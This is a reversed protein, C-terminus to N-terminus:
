YRNTFCCAFFPLLGVQDEPVELLDMYRAVTRRPTHTIKSSVVGVEEFVRSIWYSQTRSSVSKLPANLDAPILKKGYWSARDTFSPTPEGYSDWRYSLWQALAGVPCLLVDKHRLFGHYVISRPSSGDARDITKGTTVMMVVAACDQGENDLRISVLDALEVMRTSESRLMMAHLLLLDLRTRFSREENSGRSALLATSIKRSEDITYGDKLGRIARDEFTSRRLSARTIRLDHLFARILSGRPHPYLNGEALRQDEWLSILASVYGSEM